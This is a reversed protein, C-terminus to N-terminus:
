LFGLIIRHIGYFIHATKSHKKATITDNKASIDPTEPKSLQCQSLRIIAEFCIVYRSLVHTFSLKWFSAFWKLFVAFCSNQPYKKPHASYHLDGKYISVTTQIIIWSMHKLKNHETIKKMITIDVVKKHIQKMRNGYHWHFLGSFHPFYIVYIRYLHWYLCWLGFYLLATHM